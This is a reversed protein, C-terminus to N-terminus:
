FNKSQVTWGDFGTLDRNKFLREGEKGGKFMYDLWTRAMRSFEGGFEQSYTGGHGVPLNVWAVPQNPFNKYDIEANPYAIDTEGGIIYVTPTHIAQVFAPTANALTMEGMGSNMVLLTKIRPDSSLYIAQCGGCSMGMAAALDANVAGHYESRPNNAQNTIWDLAQYMQWSESGTAMPAGGGPMPGAPRQAGPQGGPRPGAPQGEPRQGGPRPGGQGQMPRPERSEQFPGIAVIVYGYSALDSLFREHGLSSNACGGNGFIVVPFGAGEPLKEPRYVVFDPLTEESAAIAKYPGSGGNDIVKSKVIQANIGTCAALALISLILIKKM